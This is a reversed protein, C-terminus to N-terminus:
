AQRLIREIVGVAVGYVATVQAATMGYKAWARIRAFQSSPIEPIMRQASSVPPESEQHGLSATSLARLIRPKRASQGASPPPNPVAESIPRKSTLLAEPEQRAKNIPERYHRRLYVQQWRTFL